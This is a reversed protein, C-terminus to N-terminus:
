HIGNSALEYKIFKLVTDLDFYYYYFVQFAQKAVQSGDTAVFIIPDDINAIM